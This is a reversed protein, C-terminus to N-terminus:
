VSFGAAWASFFGLLDRPECAESVVWGLSQALDRTLVRPNAGGERWQRVSPAGDRKALRVGQFDTMLPVHWFRPARAQLADYLLLQRPTSELLDTGRLVDSVGMELDDAVCALQYAWAGDNRRIVFDGVNRQVNQVGRGAIGDVFRVELDPTVFRLAEPRGPHTVGNRCVGPYRPETGHPASSAELVERRSCTCPYTELQAAAAEYLGTRESQVYPAHAGGVDWGEDWDLGLWELDRLITDAAGSRVRGVDLDELRLVFAGGAERVQLWALLATRLNGLHMEGTPSPAFRGRVPNPFRSDPIPFRIM